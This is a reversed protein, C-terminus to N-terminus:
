VRLPMLVYLRTLGDGSEAADRWLSPAQPDSLEIAVDAAGVHGLVDLAYKANFGIEMAARASAPGYDCALEEIAIGAEPSRVELKLIEGNVGDLEFKVARAKASTITAVREIAEELEARKLKLLKDNGVPVVRSYDPFTGDVLKTTYVTDGIEFQMKGKSVAVGIPAQEGGEEAAPLHDILKRITGMAQRPVIVGPLEEAGEPLDIQFRALRHGDTAAARLKDAGDVQHRHMYIGNLYYRTEETSMAFALADIVEALVKPALEFECDWEEPTFRPFDEPPLTSLTFRSRGAVILLQTNSAMSLSVQGDQPLKAAIAALYKASVTTEFTDGQEVTVTRELLSDLNTSMLRLGEATATLLVNSLIPVTDKSASVSAAESAAERLRKAELTITM